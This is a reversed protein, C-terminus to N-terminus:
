PETGKEQFSRYLAPLVLLTMITSTFLGSIVVIALPRQVESGPGTAFLLPALGLISISATMLVPRLRKSCGATIAEDVGAGERRLKNIYTILVLGNLVAVGFLAIFGVSAPVSLYQGSIFLGLIGGICAFPLTLIILAAHRFSNFAIFLLFYILVITVPVILMLRKMARQQNEFAGGWNLYYGPPLKIASRIKKQAEDVFGGIDRGVVNCEVVIRRKGNDRSIQVPGDLVTIGALQALPVDAGGPARVLINGITEVSNRRNEPFRVVAAFRKDGELIETAEKGGIATEVINQIDAVNIGYRAIEDRKIDVTLYPQGASEEVKVDASGRIDGVIRAIDQARTRLTQLDDGFVKIALQSKVGSILEDVRLAIPQSISFGAGPIKELERRMKEILEERTRATKWESRPRLIVVPDSVNPGQPDTAIEFAGLKSVVTKVEPFRMLVQQVKREIEISESLSISPLRIVLPSLSGEDMSPIFERGLFPFLAISVSLLTAAGVIVRRRHTMAWHLAPMYVRKSWAVIFSDKEPIPKLAFSILPPLAVISLALSSLLAIVVVLALPIFMKGEIGQLTMIPVFTLAIILVGFLSPKLVEVISDRIAHIKQGAAGPESLRRQVNEVQIVAADVIMGISIALGGLSMLNASLGIKWMVVFTSLMALPLTVAVVLAGRVNGLFLYLIIIVLISGEVLARIVTAVSKEVLDTRDYFPEIRAHGPLVNGTNIEQVKKKVAAVVQKASGGRIMMVIGGVTEKGDKLAAGQRTGPGIKM